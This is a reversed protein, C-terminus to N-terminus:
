QIREGTVQIFADELTAEESHITQIQNAQLLQLFDPNHGLRDLEFVLQGPQEKQTVKVKPTGYRIKLALPTDLSKITGAHLLAV